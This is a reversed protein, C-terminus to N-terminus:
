EPRRKTQQLKTSLLGKKGHRSFNERWQLLEEKDLGYVDSAEELTLWELRIATALIFKRNPTWRIKKDPLDAPTIVNGQLDKFFTQKNKM